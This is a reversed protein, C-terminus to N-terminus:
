QIAEQGIVMADPDNPNQLAYRNFRAPEMPIDLLYNAVTSKGEGTNGLLIVIDQNETSLFFAYGYQKYFRM